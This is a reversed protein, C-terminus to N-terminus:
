LDFRQSLGVMLLLPCCTFLFLCSGPLARADLTTALTVWYPIYMSSPEWACTVEAEGVNQRPIAGISFVGITFTLINDAPAQRMHIQLRLAM